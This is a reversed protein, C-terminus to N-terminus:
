IYLRRSKSYQKISKINENTAEIAMDLSLDKVELINLLIYHKYTDIVNKINGNFYNYLYFINKNTLLLELNILNYNHQKAYYYLPIKVIEKVEKVNYKIKLIDKNNLVLREDNSTIITKDFLDFYSSLLKQVYESNNEIIDFNDIILTNEKSYLYKKLINVIMSTYDYQKVLYYNDVEFHNNLLIVFDQYIKNLKAELKLLKNNYLSLDLKKIYEILKLALVIEYYNDIIKLNHKKISDFLILSNFSTYIYKKPNEKCLNNSNYYMHKLLTTRGSGEGILIVNKEKSNIIKQIQKKEGRYIKECNYINNM